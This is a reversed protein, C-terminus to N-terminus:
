DPSEGGLVSRMRRDSRAHHHEEGVGEGSTCDIRRAFRREHVRASAPNRTDFGQLHPASSADHVRDSMVAELGSPGTSIALSVRPHPLAAVHVLRPLIRARHPLTGVSQM